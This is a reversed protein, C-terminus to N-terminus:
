VFRVACMVRRGPRIDTTHRLSSPKPADDSRQWPVEPFLVAEVHLPGDLRLPTIPPPLDSGVISLTPDQRHFELVDLDMRGFVRADVTVITM